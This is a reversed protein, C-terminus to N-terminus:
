RECGERCAAEARRRQEVPRCGQWERQQGGQHQGAHRACRNYRPGERGAEAKAGEGDEHGEAAQEPGAPEGVVGEDREAVGLVEDRAMAEDVVEALAHLAVGVKEPSDQGCPNDRAAAVHREPAMDGAHGEADGNHQEAVAEGRAQEALGPRQHGGQDDGCALAQQEVGRAAGAQLGAEEGQKDEGGAGAVQGGCAHAAVQEDGRAQQKAEGGEGAGLADEDEREGCRM